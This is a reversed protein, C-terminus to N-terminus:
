GPCCPFKQLLADKVASVPSEYAATVVVDVRREKEASYNVIKGSSIDSNPSLTWM